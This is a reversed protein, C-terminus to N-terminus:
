ETCGLKWRRLGDRVCVCEAWCTGSQCRACSTSACSAGEEPLQELEPEECVCALPPEPAGCPVSPLMAVIEPPCQADRAPGSECLSCDLVEDGECYFWQQGAVYSGQGCVFREMWLKAGILEGTKGDFTWTAREDDGRSSGLYDFGCQRVLGPFRTGDCTAGYERVLADRDAPCRIGGARELEQCLAEVSRATHQPARFMDPAASCRISPAASSGADHARSAPVDPGTSPDVTERQENSACGLLLLALVWAREPFM